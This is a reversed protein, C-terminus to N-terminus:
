TEFIQEFFKISSNEDRGLVITRIDIVLAIDPGLNRIEFLDIDNPECLFLRSIADFSSAQVSIFIPPYLEKFNSIVQGMLFDSATKWHLSPGPIIKKGLVLDRGKFHIEITCTMCIYM